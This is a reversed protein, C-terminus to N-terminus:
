ERKRVKEIERVIVNVKERDRDSEAKLEQSSRNSERHSATERHIDTPRYTGITIERECVCM